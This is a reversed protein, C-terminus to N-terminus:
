ADNPVLPSFFSGTTRVQGTTLSTAQWVTISGQLSIQVEGKKSVAYEDNMAPPKFFTWTTQIQGTMLDTAQVIMEKELTM